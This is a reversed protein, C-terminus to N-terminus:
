SINPSPPPSRKATERASGESERSADTESLVAGPDEAPIVFDHWNPDPEVLTLRATSKAVAEDYAIRAMIADRLDKVYPVATEQADTIWRWQSLSEFEEASLDGLVRGQFGELRGLPFTRWQESM